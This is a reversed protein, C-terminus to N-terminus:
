AADTTRDEENIRNEVGASNEAQCPITFSFTAGPGDNSKAWLRGHHAAIISQSISLGIGIGDTKTTYFAEFLRDASQVSFGIGADKVSLSVDGGDNRETRIVLERRRDEVSSMAESANRLLNLIVQQLQIRDAMVPPLNDAFEQRLIVRSRHLENLSLSTVERAAENLDIWELQPDKKSYLTRLRSIVDTARNGDRITRRATECAGEVNPPDASLM